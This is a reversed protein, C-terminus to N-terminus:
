RKGKNQGNGHVSSWQPSSIYDSCSLSRIIVLYDTSIFLVPYLGPSSRTVRRVACVKHRREMFESLYWLCLSMRPIFSGSLFFVSTAKSYLLMGLNCLCLLINGVNWDIRFAIDAFLATKFNQGKGM